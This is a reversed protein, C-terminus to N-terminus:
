TPHKEAGALELIGQLPINVWDPRNNLEYGLEYVAKRLLFADMMVQLDTENAPLLSVAAQHYAKFFVAGVWRSWFRAWLLTEPLQANALTGREIQKRLAAQAACHFSRVMGAVDQLPSRKLRRESISLAPEGEFDIILFEKGTHLVQGLHYDGHIRIRVADIRREYLARLRKIIEPELALVPQAEERIEPPLNKLQRALLQFNQRTLNRIAQFLGRQSHPTFPEPAFNRDETESALTEHMAATREGLLRASEVYTNLLQRAPEPIEAGALKTISGM